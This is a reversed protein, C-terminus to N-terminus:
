PCICSIKKKEMGTVLFSELYALNSVYMKNQILKIDVQLLKTEM